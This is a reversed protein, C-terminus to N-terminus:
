ECNGQVEVCACRDLRGDDAAADRLRLHLEVRGAHGCLDARRQDRRLAPRRDARYRRRLRRLAERRRPAGPADLAESAPRLGPVQHQLSTYKYARQGADALARTYEEWLLMLMVGPRKLEQHVYGFDPKLQHSSRPLPPRYLQAELAEDSLAQVAEWDLGAVRALSVFKGVVSKSIQLARGVENYSLGAQLHLRLAERIRRM